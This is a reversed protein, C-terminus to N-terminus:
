LFDNNLNRKTLIYREKTVKYLDNAQIPDKWDFKDIPVSYNPDKYNSFSTIHEAM